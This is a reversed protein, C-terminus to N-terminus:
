TVYEAKYDQEAREVRLSVGAVGLSEPLPDANVVGPTSIFMPFYSFHGFMRVVTTVILVVPAALITLETATHKQM